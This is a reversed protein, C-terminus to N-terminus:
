APGGTVLPAHAAREPSERGPSVHSSSEHSTEQSPLPLERDEARPLTAQIQELSTLGAAAKILADERMSRFGDQRAIQEIERSSRGARIADYCARGVRLVEHVAIRGYHGSGQCRPCVLDSPEGTPLVRRGAGRRLLAPPQLGYERWYEAQAPTVPEDLRCDPCIRGLLRQAMALKLVEAVQYHPVGLDGLRLVASPADLTHLTSIVTHGTMAAHAVTEATEADRIEGIGIIDPDQRLLARLGDVFTFRFDTNYTDLRVESQNIGAMRIEVPNELTFITRTGDNIEKYMSAMTRSKGSGTPGTVILLGQPQTIAWAVLARNGPSFDSDDLLPVQDYTDLLRLTIKYGTIVRLINVRLTRVTVSGASDQIPLDLMADQPKVTHDSDLSCMNRLRAVLGDKVISPLRSVPRMVGNVRMLILVEDQTPQFHIDSAGMNIAEAITNRIMVGLTDEANQSASVAARRQFTSSEHEVRRRIESADYISTILADIAAPTTYALKVTHPVQDQLRTKTWGRADEVLILLPADKQDGERSHPVARLSRILKLDLEDRVRAEPPNSEPDLYPVGDLLARARTETVADIRREQLLRASLDRGDQDHPEARVNLQALAERMTAPPRQGVPELELAPHQEPARDVTDALAPPLYALTQSTEVYLALFPDPAAKRNEGTRVQVYIGTDTASIVAEGVEFGSMVFAETVEPELIGAARAAALVTPYEPMRQATAVVRPDDRGLITELARLWRREKTSVQRGSESM